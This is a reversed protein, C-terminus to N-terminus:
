FKTLFDVRFSQHHVGFDLLKAQNTRILQLFRNIEPWIGTIKIMLM